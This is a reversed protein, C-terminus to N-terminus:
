RFVSVEVKYKLGKLRLSLTRRNFIAGNYYLYSGCGKKLMLIMLFISLNKITKWLFLLVNAIRMQQQM